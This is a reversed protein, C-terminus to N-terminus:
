NNTENTAALQSRGNACQCSRSFAHKMRGSAMVAFSVNSQGILDLFLIIPLGMFIHRLKVIIPSALAATNASAM